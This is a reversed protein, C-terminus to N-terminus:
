DDHLGKIPVWAHGKPSGSKLALAMAMAKALAMALAMAMKGNNIFESGEPILTWVMM